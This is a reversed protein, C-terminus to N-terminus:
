VVDIKMCDKLLAKLLWTLNYLNGSDRDGMCTGDAALARAYCQISDLLTQVLDPAYGTELLNLLEPYKEM